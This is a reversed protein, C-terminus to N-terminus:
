LSKVMMLSFQEDLPHVDGVNMFKRDYTVGLGDPVYGMKVYLRQAAGFSSDLGVGIGIEEHGESAALREAAVILGRGAGRRRFEPLVNLDQIEPIGLKRFPAYKASYNLLCYGADRGSEMDVAILVIMTREAVRELCREYYSPDRSHDMAEALELLRWGKKVDLIETVFSQLTPYANDQM